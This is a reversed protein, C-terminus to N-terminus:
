RFGVWRLFMVSPCMSTIGAMLFISVLFWPGFWAPEPFMFYTVYLFIAALVRQAREADCPIRYNERIFPDYVFDKGYRIKSVIMPLRLNTLGEYVYVIILAYMMYANDLSLTILLYIGQLLRFSRETM